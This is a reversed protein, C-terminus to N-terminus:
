RVRRIRFNGTDAFILEGTGLAIGMTQTMSIKSNPEVSLKFVDTTLNLKASTAGGNDGSFGSQGAIGAYGTAIGGSIKIIQHSGSSIVYVTNSADIVLDRPKSVTAFNNFVGTGSGTEQLITNDDHNAVYLKGSSDFALGTYRKNTPLALTTLDGTNRSIKYVAGNINSVVPDNYTFYASSIYIDGT